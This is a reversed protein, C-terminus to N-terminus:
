YNEIFQELSDDISLGLRKRLRNRTKKVTDPSIGQITAIELKTLKIKLLIFLREEAESLNFSSRLRVIFGSYVKDFSQKFATWDEPSM